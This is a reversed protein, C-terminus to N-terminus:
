LLFLHFCLNQDSKTTDSKQFFVKSDSLDSVGYPTIQTFHLLFQINDDYSYYLALHKYTPIFINTERLVM